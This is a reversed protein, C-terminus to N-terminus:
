EHASWSIKVYLNEYEKWARKKAGDTFRLKGYIDKTCSDGKDRVDKRIQKAIKFIDQKQLSTQKEKEKIESQKMLASKFSPYDQKNLSKKSANWLTEQHTIRFCVKAANRNIQKRPNTVILKRLTVDICNLQQRLKWKCPVKEFYKLFKLVM